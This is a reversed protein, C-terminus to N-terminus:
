IISIMHRTSRNAPRMRVKTPLEACALVWHDRTIRGVPTLDRFPDLPKRNSMLYAFVVADLGGIFLTQGLLEVSSPARLLPM